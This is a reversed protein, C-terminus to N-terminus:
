EKPGVVIKIVTPGGQGNKPGTCFKTGKVGSLELLKRVGKGDNSLM